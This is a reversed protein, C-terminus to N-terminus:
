VRWADDLLSSNLMSNLEVASGYCEWLDEVTIGTNRARYIVDSLRDHLAQATAKVNSTTYNVADLVHPKLGQAALSAANQDNLKGDPLGDLFALLATAARELEDYIKPLRGKRAYRRRIKEITFAVYITLVLGVLSALTGVDVLWVPLYSSSAIPATM